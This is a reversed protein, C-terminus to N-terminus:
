AARRPRTARSVFLQMLVSVVLTLILVPWLGEAPLTLGCIVVCIGLLVGMWGYRLAARTWVSPAPADQGTPPDLKGAGNGLIAIWLGVGVTFVRALLPRDMEAGTIDIYAFLGQIAVLAATGVQMAGALQRRHSDSIRLRSSAFRLAILAAALALWAPPFVLMFLQPRTNPLRFVGMHASPDPGGFWPIDHRTAIIAAAVLTMEVIAAFIVFKLTRSM